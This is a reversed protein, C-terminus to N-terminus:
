REKAGNVFRKRIRKSNGKYSKKLFILIHVSAFAICSQRTCKRWVICEDFKEYKQRSFSLFIRWVVFVIFFVHLKCVAFKSALLWKTHSFFFSLSLCFSHSLFFFFCYLPLSYFSAITIVAFRSCVIFHFCRSFSVSLYYHLSASSDYFRQELTIQTYAALMTLVMAAHAIAYIDQRMWMCGSHKSANSRGGCWECFNFVSKGHWSNTNQRKKKERLNEKYECVCVCELSDCYYHCIASMSLLGWHLCVCASVWWWLFFCHTNLENHKRNKVTLIHICQFDSVSHIIIQRHRKGCALRWHM